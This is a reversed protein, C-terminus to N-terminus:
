SPFCTLSPPLSPPLCESSCSCHAFCKDGLFFLRPIGAHQKQPPYFCPRNVQSPVVQFIHLSDLCFAQDAESFCVKYRIHRSEFLFVDAGWLWLMWVMVMVPQYYIHFLSHLYADAGGLVNVIYLLGVTIAAGFFTM